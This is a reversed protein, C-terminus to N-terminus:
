KSPSLEIVVPVPQETQAQEITRTEYGEAQVVLPHWVWGFNDTPVPALWKRVTARELVFKGEADTAVATHRHDKYM